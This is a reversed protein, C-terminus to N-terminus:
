QRSAECIRHRDTLQLITFGYPTASSSANADALSCLAYRTQTEASAYGYLAQQPQLLIRLLNNYDTAAFV